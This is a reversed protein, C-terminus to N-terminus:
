NPCIFFFICNETKSPCKHGLVVFPVDQRGHENQSLSCFLTYFIFFIFPFTFNYKWLIVEINVFKTDNSLKNLRRNSLALILKKLLHVKQQIPDCEDMLDVDCTELPLLSLMLCVIEKVTILPRWIFRVWGLYFAYVCMVEDFRIIICWWWWANKNRFSRGNAINNDYPPINKTTQITRVGPFVQCFPIRLAPFGPWSAPFKRLCQFFFQIDSFEELFQQSFFLPLIGVKKIRNRERTAM